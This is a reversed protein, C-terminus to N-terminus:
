ADIVVICAGVDTGEGKFSGPPLEIWESALSGLRDRRRPGAAVISCLRGGPALLTRAHLVHQIDAGNKFPPNMVVSDFLGLRDAGMSLFDGCEVRAAADGETVRRLEACCDPSSDVLVVPAAPDLDRVARYLRGLGASPELTRGFTGLLGALRAALEPPTQFLNFASVVRPAADDGKLRAFRSREGDVEEAADATASRLAALRSLGARRSDHASV